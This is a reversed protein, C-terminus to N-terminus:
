HKIYKTARYYPNSLETEITFSKLDDPPSADAPAIYWFINATDSLEDLSSFAPRGLSERTDDDPVLLPATKADISAVLDSLPTNPSAINMLGYVGAVLTIYFIAALLPALFILISRVKKM